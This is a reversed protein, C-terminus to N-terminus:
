HPLEHRRPLGEIDGIVQVARAGIWNGRALAAPWSLGELRASILGAAFGDGAGVTDIVQEVQVGPVTVEEDASRLYAGAPGLKIVVAKAGRALYFDAIERPADRGTLLRGEALGPLVWDALAALRNVTAIMRELSAWLRPRLNPDFSVSRGAGRLSRMVQESLELASGSLAPTIGTAHLHRAALCYREDFDSLSLASAASNRRYYEVVPDEGAAARAKLM